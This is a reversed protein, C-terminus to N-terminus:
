KKTGFYFRFFGLRKALATELQVFKKGGWIPFHTKSSDEVALGFKALKDIIEKKYYIYATTCNPGDTCHHPFESWSLYKWGMKQQNAIHESWTQNNKGGFKKKILELLLRTRFYFQIRVWYNFSDKTYLMIIFKGGHKLVRSIQEFTNEINETHHLVGHSYVIDFSNNEFPLNEANGQIINGELGMMKFHAKTTRVAEHTLDIGTYTKANRGWRVSDAGVGLGIELVDKGKASEWDVIKLLQHEKQYRFTTYNEFFEKTLREEEIFHAGCLSEEWYNKIDEIKQTEM